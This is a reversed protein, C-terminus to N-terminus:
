GDNLGGDVIRFTLDNDYRSQYIRVPRNLIVDMAITNFVRVRGDSFTLVTRRSSSFFSTSEMYEVKIVTGSAVLWDGCGTAFVTACLLISIILWTHKVM